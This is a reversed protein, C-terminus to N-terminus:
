QFFSTLLISRLSNSRSNFWRSGPVGGKKEESRKDVEKKTASFRMRVTFSKRTGRETAGMTDEWGM